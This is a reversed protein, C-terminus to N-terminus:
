ADAAGPQSEHKVMKIFNEISAADGRLRRLAEDGLRQWERLDNLAAQQRKVIREALEIAEANM